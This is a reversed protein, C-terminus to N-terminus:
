IKCVGMQAFSYPNSIFSGKFESSRSRKLTYSNEGPYDLLHQRQFLGMVDPPPGAWGARGAGVAWGEPGQCCLGVAM